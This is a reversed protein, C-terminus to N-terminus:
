DDRLRGPRAGVTGAQCSRRGAPRATGSGAPTRHATGSGEDPPRAQMQGVGIRRHDNLPEALHDLRVGTQRVDSPPTSSCTRSSPPPMPARVRTAVKQDFANAWMDCMAQLPRFPHGPTPNRWLRRLLGAIVADQECPARHRLPTGPACRELLLATTFEHEEVEHLFVTGDGAWEHLGDAEHEAESHRWGLKLVLEAGNPDTAPAVWACQGGPAFPAGVTLSWREALERVSNPLTALWWQLGDRAAAEVLNPPM